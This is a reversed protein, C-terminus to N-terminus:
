QLVRDARRLLAPPITLGLVEAVKLNIVLAFTAPQQIPLDAPKAGQPEQGHRLGGCGIRPLKSTTGAPAALAM